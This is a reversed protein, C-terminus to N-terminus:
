SVACVMWEQTRSGSVSRGRMQTGKGLACTHPFVFLFYLYLFRDSIIGLALNVLPKSIM